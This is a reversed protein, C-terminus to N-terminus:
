ASTSREALAASVTLVVAKPDYNPRVEILMCGHKECLERKIADRRQQQAFGGAGGFREVPRDHQEGQYEVALNRQPFYIDLSQRGLWEPRGQHVIEEGPFAQRALSLLAAESVWAEGVRPLGHALRVRNEAERYRKRLLPKLDIAPVRPVEVLIQPHPNLWSFLQESEFRLAKVNIRSTVLDRIESSQHTDHYEDFHRLLAGEIEDRFLMGTSTLGHLNGVWSRIFALRVRLEPHRVSWSTFWVDHAELMEDFADQVDGEHLLRHARHLRGFHQAIPDPFVEVIREHVRISEVSLPSDISEDRLADTLYRENEGFPLPENTWLADRFRESYARVAETRARNGPSWDYVPISRHEPLPLRPGLIWHGAHDDPQRHAQEFKQLRELVAKVRTVGAAQALRVLDDTSRRAESSMSGLLFEATRAKSRWLALQSSVQDLDVLEPYVTAIRPAAAELADLTETDRLAAALRGFWSDFYKMTRRGWFQPDVQAQLAYHRLHLSAANWQKAKYAHM